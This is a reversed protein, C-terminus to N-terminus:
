KSDLAYTQATVGIAAPTGGVLEGGNGPVGLSFDANNVTPATGMYLIGISPGGGGPGGSGGTGGATGPAGPKGAAIALSTSGANGPPGGPQGAGGPAGEGGRGGSGTVLRPWDLVVQSNVIVLALSAGGGFGGKGGQGGCGGPGGQGGGSGPAFRYSCPDGFIVHGPGGDGGKGPLGPRGSTGPSGANSAVYLVGDLTGIGKAAGAGSMGHEIEQAGSPLFSWDGGTLRYMGAGGPNVAPDLAPETKPVALCVPQSQAIWPNVGDGGPGGMVDYSLGDFQCSVFRGSGGPSTWACISQRSNTDCDALTANGGDSGADPPESLAPDGPTGARGNAGNGAIFEVHSLRVESSSLIAGAQSSRGELKENRARFAIRDILVASPASNILLPFGQLPQIVARDKVRVWNRACDYGGYINVGSEIVVNDRYTGNCVYVDMHKQAALALARSITAVPQEITGSADDNGTPSVFVAHSVDGDIGDCNSDVFDDDPADEASTPDCVAASGGEGGAGAASRSGAEGGAGGLEFSTAGGAGGDRGEGLAGASAAEAGGAGADGGLGASTNDSDSNSGSCGAFPLAGGSLALVITILSRSARM